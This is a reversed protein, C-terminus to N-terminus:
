SPYYRALNTPLTALWLSHCGSCEAYTFQDFTGFLMERAEHTLAPEGDLCVPCRAAPMEPQIVALPVSVDLSTRRFALDSDLGCSSRYDRRRAENHAGYGSEM